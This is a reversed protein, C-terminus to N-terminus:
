KEGRLKNAYDKILKRSSVGGVYVPVNLLCEDISQAKLNKIYTEIFRDENLFDTIDKENTADRLHWLFNRHDDLSAALFDNEKQLEEITKM